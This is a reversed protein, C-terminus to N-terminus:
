PKRRVRVLTTNMDLEWELPPNGNKELEARAVHIGQGFRQVFGLDRLAAALNPNRYDTVGTGFTKATVRGFPGGPNQIEIRDNFWHIQIPAHSGDYARHMVANRFLQRLASIPYDPTRQEIEVDVFRTPTRIHNELIEETRRIIEVIRGTVEKQDVIPSAFEIGDLRLFQVYAGAIWRTPDVGVLLVGLTTPSGSPDRLRLGIMQEYLDRHNAAIVEPAVADPLYTSRFYEGDLESLPVFPLPQADFPLANHRRRESLRQEQEYTAISRTSGTRIWTRGEFRVPPSLSPEVVAVAVEHGNVTHRTVTLSPVPLIKTNNRIQALEAILKDDITVGSFTRDDRQGIVIAGPARHDPYDNAFACIAEYVRDKMGGAFSEKREVRDSEPAALLAALDADNMTM